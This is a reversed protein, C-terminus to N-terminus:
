RTVGGQELIHILNDIDQPYQVDLIVRQDGIKNVGLGKLIIEDKNRSQPKIHVQNRGNITKVEKDCGRLAELLSIHLTTVVDRGELQLGSEPVVTIHLFADTYQDMGMFHTVYNGMGQLRLVSGNVVGGPVSVHVSVDTHVSGKGSCDKCSEMQTQGFCKTCTQVFVMNGRQSRVQGKGGCVKCGNNLAVEGNGECNRCKADREFKMEKKCGLVSEKFNISTYLNVNEAEYVHTQRFPNHGRPSHWGPQPEPTDGKQFQEYAQNIQKFKEEAGAEKNVDPHFKKTLERYKKKAEEPSADTGIGLISCSEKFNM